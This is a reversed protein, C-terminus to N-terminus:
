REYDSEKDQKEDPIYIDYRGKSLDGCESHFNCDTLLEEIKERQKDTGNKHIMALNYIDLPSFSYHLKSSLSEGRNVSNIAKRFDKRINKEKIYEMADNHLSEPCKEDNCYIIFDATKEKAISWMIQGVNIDYDNFLKYEYDYGFVESNDKIGYSDDPVNILGLKIYPSNKIDDKTIYFETLINNDSIEYETKHTKIFESRGQTHFTEPVNYVRVRGIQSSKDSVQNDIIIFNDLAQKECAFELIQKEIDPYEKIFRDYIQFLDININATFFSSIGTHEFKINDINAKLTSENNFEPQHVMYDIFRAGFDNENKRFPLIRKMLISENGSVEFHAYTFDKNGRERTKYIDELILDKIDLMGNNHKIAEEILDKPSKDRTKYIISM